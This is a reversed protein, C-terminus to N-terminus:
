FTYKLNLDLSICAHLTFIIYKFKNIDSNYVTSSFSYKLYLLHLIRDRGKLLKLKLCLSKEKCKEQIIYINVHKM